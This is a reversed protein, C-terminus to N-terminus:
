NLSIKIWSSPVLDGTDMSAETYWTNPAIVIGSPDNGLWAAWWSFSSNAIIHHRCQSMVVLDKYDDQGQNHTVYETPLKTTLNAQVWAPDDSFIYLKLGQHRSSLHEIAQQYYKTTCTAYLSNAVYDGRRVHLSVSQEQHMATVLKHNVADLPERLTFEPRLRETIDTFFKERQWYGDLYAKNGTTFVKQDFGTLYDRVITYGGPRYWWPLIRVLPSRIQAITPLETPKAIPASIQFHDLNFRRLKQEDFGRIDLKLPVHHREAAALGCAYQFMQNGLGGILRVIIM